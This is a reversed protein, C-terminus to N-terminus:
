SIVLSKNVEATYADKGKFQGEPGYRNINTRKGKDSSCISGIRYAQGLSGSKTKSGTLFVFIDDNRGSERAWTALKGRLLNGWNKSPCWDHGSAPIVTDTWEIVTTLTDRESYMEDVIAMVARARTTARSGFEKQFCDDYVLAVTARFHPHFRQVNTSFYLEPRTETSTVM